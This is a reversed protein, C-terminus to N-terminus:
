EPERRQDDVAIGDDGGSMGVDFQHVMARGRSRRHRVQLEPDPDVFRLSRALM